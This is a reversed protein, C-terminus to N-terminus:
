DLLTQLGDVTARTWGEREDDQEREAVAGREDEEAVLAGEEEVDLSRNGFTLARKVRTSRKTSSAHGLSTSLASWMPDLAGTSEYVAVGALGNAKAYAGKAAWSQDDEYTIFLKRNGAPNFLFPTKTCEDFYRTYNSAGKKLDKSLLKQAVLEKTSWGLNDPQGTAALAQFSRTSVGNYVTTKLSTKATKWRQSYSPVGLVIQCAPFGAAVWRKVTADISDSGADCTYLPSNAGTTSSWAGYYDYTMLQIWDFYAAFKSVDTLIGGSPGTIGAAPVAASIYMDIGLTSRLKSLFSLYNASDSPSVINNGAGQRGIFEWDLDVGKFGYTRMWTKITNAFAARKKSTSVLDSFYVSGSWGGVTLMPIKGAAVAAASFSKMSAATTGPALGIGGETTLACFWFAVDLQSWDVAEVAGSTWAPVYAAMLPGKSTIAPCKLARPQLASSSSTRRALDLHPSTTPPAHSALAVCALSLTSTLLSVLRM